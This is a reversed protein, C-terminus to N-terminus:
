MNKPFNMLVVRIRSGWEDCFLAGCRYSFVINVDFRSSFVVKVNLIWEGCVEIHLHTERYRQQQQKSFYERQTTYIQTCLDIACPAKGNM